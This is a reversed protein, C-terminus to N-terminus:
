CGPFGRGAAQDFSEVHTVDRLPLSLKLLTCPLEVTVHVERGGGGRIRGNIELLRGRYRSGHRAFGVVEGLHGLLEEENV